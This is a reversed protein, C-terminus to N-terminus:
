NLLMFMIMTFSLFIFGYISLNEKHQNKVLTM